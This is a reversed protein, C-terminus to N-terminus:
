DDDGGHTHEMAISNETDRRTAARGASVGLAYFGAFMCGLIIDGLITLIMKDRGKAWIATGTISPQPKRPRLIKAGREAVALSTARTEQGSSAIGADYWTWWTAVSTGRQNDFKLDKM